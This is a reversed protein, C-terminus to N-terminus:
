CSSLISIFDYFNFIADDFNSTFQSTGEVDPNPLRSKTTYVFSILLYRKIHLEIKSASSSANQHKMNRDNNISEVKIQM